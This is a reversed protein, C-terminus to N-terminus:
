HTKKRIKKGIYLSVYFAIIHDVEKEYADDSEDSIEESEYALYTKSFQYLMSLGACYAADHAECEFDTGNAIAYGLRKESNWTSSRYHENRGYFINQLEKANSKIISSMDVDKGKLQQCLAEVIINLKNRLIAEVVTPKWLFPRNDDVFAVYNNCNDRSLEYNNNIM